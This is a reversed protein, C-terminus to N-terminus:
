RLPGRWKAIYIKIDARIKKDFQELDLSSVGRELAAGTDLELAIILGQRMAWPDIEWSLAWKRLDRIKEMVLRLDEESVRSM